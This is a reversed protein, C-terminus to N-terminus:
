AKRKKDFIEYYSILLLKEDPYEFGAALFDEILYLGRDISDTDLIKSVSIEEELFQSRLQEARENGDAFIIIKYDETLKTKISSIFDQWRSQYNTNEIANIELEKDFDFNRVRKHVPS